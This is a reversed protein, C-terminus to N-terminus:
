GRNTFMAISFSQDIKTEGLAIFDLNGDRLSIDNKKYSFKYQPVLFWSKLTKVKLNSNKHIKPKKPVWKM